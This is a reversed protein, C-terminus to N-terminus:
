GLVEGEKTGLQDLPSKTRAVHAASIRTYLQTTRISNHGLLVQVTRIDAGTELLHTAFSHRLVHPTVRKTLGTVEVAKGLANRVADPGIHTNPKQGPFLWPRPPREAKWYERLGLLLNEALMVYRDKAGKGNRIKILM